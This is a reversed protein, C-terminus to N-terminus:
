SEPLADGLAVLSDVAEASSAPGLSALAQKWARARPCGHFLGLLHRSMAHLKGGAAVHAHLRPALAALFAARSTFADAARGHLTTDASALLWPTDCAARGVMVSDVHALHAEAEALSTVGGNTAIFLDPREAKLRHVEAHRLPPITRNQKPSLGKLWAKRAHVIFSRCGAAAVTDVFARLDGYSDRDDIGIRHKVTVPIAVRAAIAGVMEGVLQPEAMLCAGFRGKQVRDSPCGVNLNVEVYGRDEAIVAAEALTVPDDGGLQLAVAGEVTPDFDLLDHRRGRIVANANIMETYFLTSTTLPRLVARFFRDTYDMMPAVSLRATAPSPRPATSIPVILGSFFVDAARPLV